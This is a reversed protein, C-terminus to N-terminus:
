LNNLNKTKLLKIVRDYYQKETFNSYEKMLQRLTVVEYKSKDYLEAWWSIPISKNKLPSTPKPCGYHSVTAQYSTLPMGNQKARFNQSIRECVFCEFHEIFNGKEFDNNIGWKRKVMTEKLLNNTIKKYIKHHLHLEYATKNSNLMHLYDALHKPSDFESALIVSNNHPLWDKVSSSGYYIPVSGVSLPRWLKETIYDNCVANEFSISFKYNSLLEWFEENDMGEVPDSLRESLDKNHLCKGYSDIKIYKMLEQIYSDRESPTNCDSQVYVVPSLKTLEKNKQETSKFYKHNVLSELSDLYQLTLPFDSERKFTATHNFLEMGEKFCYLFNNKPSEEHLLGWDHNNKRPLPLDLPNFDSGYFLIAQLLNNNLYSRNQTFFCKELGCQHVTGTEGTFPTWWLIIPYRHNNWSDDNDSSKLDSPLIELELNELSYLVFIIQLIFISIALFCM